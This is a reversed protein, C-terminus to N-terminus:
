VTLPLFTKLLLCCHMLNSDCEGVSIYPAKFLHAREQTHTHAHKHTHGLSLSFSLDSPGSDSGQPAFKQIKTCLRPRGLVVALTSDLEKCQLSFFSDPTPGSEARLLMGRVTRHRGFTDCLVTTSQIYPHVLDQGMIGTCEFIGIQVKM